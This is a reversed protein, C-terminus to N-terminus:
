YEYEQLLENILDQWDSSRSGYYKEEYELLANYIIDRKLCERESFYKEEDELLKITSKEYKIKKDGNTLQEM